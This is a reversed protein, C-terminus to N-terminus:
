LSNIFEPLIKRELYPKINHTQNDSIKYDIEHMTVNQRNLRKVYDKFGAYETDYKGYYFDVTIDYEDIYEYPDVINDAVDMQKFKYCKIIHMLAVPNVIYNQDALHEPRNFWKLYEKVWVSTEWKYSTQGGTVLVHPKLDELLMAISVASAAHKSDAYIIIKKYEKKIYTRIQKCTKELTDCTDSVGLVMMSPYLIEPMRFPDENVILLDTKLNTIKDSINTLPSALRGEHGAYSTLHIILVDNTGDTKKWCMTYDRSVLEFINDDYSQVIPRAFEISGTEARKSWIDILDKNFIRSFRDVKDTSERQTKTKMYQHRMMYEHLFYLEVDDEFDFETDYFTYKM